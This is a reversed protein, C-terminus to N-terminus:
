LGCEDIRELALHAPLYSSLLGPDHQEIAEEMEYGAALLSAFTSSLVNIGSVANIVTNILCSGAAVIVTFLLAVWMPRPRTNHMAQKVDEKLHARQYM